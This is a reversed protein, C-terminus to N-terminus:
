HYYNMIEHFVLNINKETYHSMIRLNLKSLKNMENEMSYSQCNTTSDHKIQSLM